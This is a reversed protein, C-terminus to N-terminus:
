SLETWIVTVKGTFTLGVTVNWNGAINLYLTKATSSGDKNDTQGAQYIAYDVETTGNFVTATQGDLCDEFTGTGGLVSVAGSAVVTGVGIDPAVACAGDAVYTLDLGVGLVAIKGKPLKGLEIGFGLAASAVAQSTSPITFETVNVGKSQMTVGTGLTIPRHGEVLNERDRITTNM